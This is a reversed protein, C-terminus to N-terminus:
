AVKQEAIIRVSKHAVRYFTREHDHHQVLVARDIFGAERLRAFLAPYLRSTVREIKRNFGVSLLHTCERISQSLNKPSNRLQGTETDYSTAYVLTSGPGKEDIYELAFSHWISRPALHCVNDGKQPRPCFVYVTIFRERPNQPPTYAPM